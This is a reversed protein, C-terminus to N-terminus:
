ALTVLEQELCSVRIKKALGCYVCTYLFWKGHFGPFKPTGYGGVMKEGLGVLVSYFFIGASWRM